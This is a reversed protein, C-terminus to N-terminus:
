PERALPRLVTRDLGRVKEFDADFTVLHAGAEVACAAIWLDNTPVPVGARRQEAFLRGYVRAVDSTVPLVSAWPEDLLEALATRNERTRRGLLFGGELEGLVITPLYVVEAAAVLDAVRGDGARLHTYASTDLAIRV